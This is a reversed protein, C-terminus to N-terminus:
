RAPARGDCAHRMANLQKDMHGWSVHEWAHGALLRGSACVTVPQPPSPSGIDATVFIRAARGAPMHGGMTVAAAVRECGARAEIRAQRTQLRTARKKVMTAPSKSIMEVRECGMWAGGQVWGQGARDAPAHGVPVEGDHCRERQCGERRDPSRRQPQTPFLSVPWQCLMYKARLTTILHFSPITLAPPRPIRTLVLPQPLATTGNDKTM